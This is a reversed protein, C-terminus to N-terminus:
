GDPLGKNQSNRKTWYFKGAKLTIFQLLSITFCRAVPIQKKASAANKIRIAM